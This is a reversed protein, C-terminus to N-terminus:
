QDFQEDNREGRQDENGHERAFRVRGWGFEYGVPLLLDVLNGSTVVDRSAPGVHDSREGSRAHRGGPQSRRGCDSVDSNDCKPEPEGVHRFEGGLSQRLALDESAGQDDLDAAIQGLTRNEAAENQIFQLTTMRACGATNGSFIAQGDAAYNLEDWNNQYPPIIDGWKKQNSPYTWGSRFVNDTPKVRISTINGGGDKVITGVGQFDNDASNAVTDGDVDSAAALLGSYATEDHLLGDGDLDATMFPYDNHIPHKATKFNGSAGNYIANISVTIRRYPNTTSATRHCITHKASLGAQAPAESLRAVGGVALLGILLGVVVVLANWRKKEAASV